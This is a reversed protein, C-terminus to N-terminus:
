NKPNISVYTAGVSIEDTNCIHVLPPIFSVTTHIGTFNIFLLKYLVVDMSFLKGSLFTVVFCLLFIVFISSCTAHVQPHTNHINNLPVCYVRVFRTHSLCVYARVRAMCFDFSKQGCLVM